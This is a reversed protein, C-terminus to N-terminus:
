VEKYRIVWFIKAGASLGSWRIEIPEDTAGQFHIEQLTVMTQVACYLKGLLVNSTPFWAEIEGATSDTSLYVSRTDLKKGSTPTLVTTPSTATATDIEGSASLEVGLYDVNVTISQSAIDVRLKQWFDTLPIQDKLDALVQPFIALSVPVRRLEGDQDYYELWLSGDDKQVIRAPKTSDARIDFPAYVFEEAV